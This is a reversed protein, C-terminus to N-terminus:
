TGPVGSKDLTSSNEASLVCYNLTQIRIQFQRQRQWLERKSSWRHAGGGGEARPGVTGSSSKKLRMM